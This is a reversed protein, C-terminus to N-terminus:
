RGQPAYTYFSHKSSEVCKAVRTSVYTDTRLYLEGVLEWLKSRVDVVDVNLGCRLAEEAYIPRGHTKTRELSLFTGIREKIEGEPAGKMMGTALTRIAIDESLEISARFEKIEREDYNALQQMYPELNGTERVARAFLDDYSEVVNVASFRQPVGDKLMTLQPDIPGLEATPDMLIRSAGLCIMTAASKAKGPVIAWYEGTDSYTRCINIIRESALSDGGPSSVFLAFGRSLDLGQLVGELLDADSDEISVPYRFSTFYSVVPRGLVRELGAFHEKRTEHAQDQENLIRL